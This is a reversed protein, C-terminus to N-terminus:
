APYREAALPMAATRRADARALTAVGYGLISATKISMPAYGFVLGAFLYFLISVAVARPRFDPGVAVAIRLARRDM